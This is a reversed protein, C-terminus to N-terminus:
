KTANKRQRIKKILSTTGIYADFSAILSSVVAWGYEGDMIHLATYVLFIFCFFYCFQWHYTETIHIFDIFDKKLKKIIMLIVEGEYV